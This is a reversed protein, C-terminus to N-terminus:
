RRTGNMPDAVVATAASAMVTMVATGTMPDAVVVATAASAIVTMMATCSM